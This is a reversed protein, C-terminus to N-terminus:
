DLSLLGAQHIPWDMHSVVARSLVGRLPTYMWWRDALFRMVPTIEGGNLREGIRLRVDFSCGPGGWRRASHYHLEEHKRTLSMASITYPVGYVFRGLLWFAQSIDMSFFAIGPCADPGIVYTRLNLQFFNSIAPIPPCWPVHASGVRFAVLSVWAQGDITDLKLGPLLRPELVAPDYSWSVFSVEDWDELFAPKDVAPPTLSVAAIGM